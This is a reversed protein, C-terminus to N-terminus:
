MELKEKVTTLCFEVKIDKEISEADIKEVKMRADNMEIKLKEALM